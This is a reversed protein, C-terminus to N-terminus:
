QLVLFFIAYVTMFAAFVVFVGLAIHNRRAIRKETAYEIIEADTVNSPDLEVHEMEHPNDTFLFLDIISYKLRVTNQVRGM